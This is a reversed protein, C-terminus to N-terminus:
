CSFAVVTQRQFFIFLVKFISNKFQRNNCIIHQQLFGLLGYKEPGSVRTLVTSVTCVSNMMTRISEFGWSSFPHRVADLRKKVRQRDANSVPRCPLQRRAEDRENHAMCLSAHRAKAISGAHCILTKHSTQSSHATEGAAAESGSVPGLFTSEDVHFKAPKSGPATWDPHPTLTSHSSSFM